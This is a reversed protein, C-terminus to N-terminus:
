ECEGGGEESCVVGQADYVSETYPPRTWSAQAGPGTGEQAKGAAGTSGGPAREGGLVAGQALVERYVIGFWDSM